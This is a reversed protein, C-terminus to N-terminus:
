TRQIMRWYLLYWKYLPTVLLISLITFGFSTWFLTSLFSRRESKNLDFWMAPMVYGVGLEQFVVFPLQCLTFMAIIGFEDLGFYRTTVPLTIFPLVTVFIEPFMYLGFNKLFKKM